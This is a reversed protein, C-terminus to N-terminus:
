EEIIQGSTWNFYKRVHKFNASTVNRLEEASWVRHVFHGVAYTQMRLKYRLIGMYVDEIRLLRVYASAISLDTVVNIGKIYSHGGFYAPYYDWPFEDESIAWRNDSYKVPRRVVHDQGLIGFSLDPLIEAPFERVLRILNNPIVAFDHDLFLFLSSEQPCFASIWRLMFTQKTTLSFYHDMFDGILLDGWQNAESFLENKTREYDQKDNGHSRYNVSVGKFHINGTYNEPPMGTVFAFRIRFDGWLHPQMYTARARNRDWHCRVCSKILVVLDSRSRKNRSPDCFGRPVMLIHMDPDNIPEQM